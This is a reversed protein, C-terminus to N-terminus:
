IGRQHRATVTGLCGIAVSPGASGGPTTANQPLGAADARALWRVATM